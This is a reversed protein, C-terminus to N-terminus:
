IRNLMSRESARALPAPKGLGWGFCTHWELLTRTSIPHAALASANSCWRPAFHGRARCLILPTDGSGLVLRAGSEVSEVCIVTYIERRRGLCELAPGWWTPLELPGVKACWHIPRM